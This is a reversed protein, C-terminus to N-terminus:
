QVEDNENLTQVHLEFDGDKSDPLLLNRPTWQYNDKLAGEIDDEGSDDDDHREKDGAAGDKTYPFM